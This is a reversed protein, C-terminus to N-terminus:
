VTSLEVADITYENPKYDESKLDEWHFLLNEDVEVSEKSFLRDVISVIYGVTCTALVGILAYWLYSVRFLTDNLFGFNSTDTAPTFAGYTDQNWALEELKESVDITSNCNSVFLKIKEGSYKEMESGYYMFVSVTENIKPCIPFVRQAKGM